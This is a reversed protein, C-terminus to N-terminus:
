ASGRSSGSSPSRPAGGVLAALVGDKLAELELETVGLYMRATAIRADDGFGQGMRLGLGFHSRHLVYTCGRASPLESIETAAVAADVEARSLGARARLGLYPGAGGVSRMWGCGLLTEAAIRGHISGDLGQRAWWWGRLRDALLAAM